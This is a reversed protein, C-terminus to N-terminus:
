QLLGPVYAQTGLLFAAEACFYRRIFLDSDVAHCAM